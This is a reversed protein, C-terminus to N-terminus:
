AVMVVMWGWFKKMMGFQLETGMFVSERSGAEGPGLYVGSQSHSETERFEVVRPVEHSRSSVIDTEKHSAQKM